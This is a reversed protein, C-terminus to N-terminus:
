ASIESRLTGHDNLISEGRRVKELLKEEESMYRRYTFWHADGPNRALENARPHEYAYYKRDIFGHEKKIFVLCEDGDITAIEDVMMLDRGTKDRSESGGGNGGKSISQKRLSITQKGLRKSLFELTKPDDGGLYILSACNDVIEEWNNKYMKKLQALSQLIIMFSMERKRFTALAEEFHAIKGINAFEDILFRVHLLQKGPALQERGLRIRDSKARLTEMITALFINAIFNFSKNTEPIAIFVATKEENWSEIEMSDHRVMDRLQDHDFVSYRSAAIGLVSARTEAEFLDNFLTWQRYAYNDPHLENQEEFWKEVPSPTKPDDRKLHRLMDSIMGLHPTYGNDRGDFWLYAIIARVLLAEAKVWFDEGQNENSKTGETIAELVRDVDLETKIYNFINFTDSNTLTNLDLIKINYKAKKLLSGVRYILGGDPDTIVFSANLQMINPTILALTKAAGSDGLVITSKNKQVKQPLCDNFLGMQVNKSLIMNNEPTPDQYKKLDEVKALCASGHEENLRYIGSDNNYVFMLLGILFFVVGSVLAAFSPHYFFHWFTKNVYNSLDESTLFIEKNYISDGPLMWFFNGIAFGLIFLFISLILYPKFKKKYPQNNNQNKM